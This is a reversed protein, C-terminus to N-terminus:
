VKDSQGVGQRSELYANVDAGLVCIKNRGCEQHCEERNHEFEAKEAESAASTPAYACVVFLRTTREREDLSQLRVAIVRKGFCWSPVERERKRRRLRPASYM